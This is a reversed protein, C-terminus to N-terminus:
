ESHGPHRAQVLVTCAVAAGFPVASFARVLGSPMLGTTWEFALTLLIPVAAALQIRVRATGPAMQMWPRQVREAARARSRSRRAGMVVAAIAAGGYLGTCRACVPLPTGALRFSREPRQHCVVRGCTYVANVFLAPPVGTPARGLWAATPLALLWGCTLLGFITRM